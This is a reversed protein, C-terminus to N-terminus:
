SARRHVEVSGRVGAECASHLLPTGRNESWPWAKLRKHMQYACRVFAGITLFNWFPTGDKKYNLLRVSCGVGDRVADRLQLCRLDILLLCVRLWIAPAHRPLRRRTPTKGKCSVAAPCSITFYHVRTESEDPQPLRPAHGTACWNKGLTEPQTYGTMEYFGDSLVCHICNLFSFVRFRVPLPGASRAFVIPCDPLSPDSVQLWVNKSEIALASFGLAPLSTHSGYARVVFTHRLGAMATTLNKQALPLKSGSGGPAAM